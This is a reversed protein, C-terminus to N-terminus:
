VQMILNEQTGVLGLYRDCNDIYGDEDKTGPWERTCVSENGPNYQLYVCDACLDDDSISQEAVDTLQQTSEFVIAVEIFSFESAIRINMGDHDITVSRLSLSSHKEVLLKLTQPLSGHPSTKFVSIRSLLDPVVQLADVDGSKAKTALLSLSTSDCVAFFGSALLPINSKIATPAGYVYNLM